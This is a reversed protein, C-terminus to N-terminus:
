DWKKFVEIVEKETINPNKIIGHKKPAFAWYWRDRKGKFYGDERIIILDWNSYIIRRITKENFPNEHLKVFHKANKETFPIIGEHYTEIKM